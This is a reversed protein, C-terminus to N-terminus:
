EMKYFIFGEMIRNAPYVTLPYSFVLNVCFALETFELFWGGDQINYIVFKEKMNGFYKYCLIGFCTYLCGLSVIAAILIKPFNQKNKSSELVPLVVGIGEFSYFSYGVMDWM